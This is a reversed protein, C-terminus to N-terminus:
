PRIPQSVSYHITGPPNRGNFGGWDAETASIEFGRREAERLLAECAERTVGVPVRNRVSRGRSYTPSMAAPAEEIGPTLGQTDRPRIWLDFIRSPNGLITWSSEPHWPVKRSRGSPYDQHIGNSDIRIQTPAERLMQMFSSVSFLGLGGFTLAFLAIVLLHPASLLGGPRSIILLVFVALLLLTFSGIALNGLSSRAM